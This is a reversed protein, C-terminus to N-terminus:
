PSAEAIVRDDVMLSCMAFVNDSHATGLNKASSPNPCTVYREVGGTAPWLAVAIGSRIYSNPRRRVRRYLGRPVMTPMDHRDVYVWLKEVSIGGTPTVSM